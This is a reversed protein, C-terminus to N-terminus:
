NLGRRRAVLAGLADELQAAYAAPDCLPLGALRPRLDARIAALGAPDRAAAVAREVYAEPSETVWAGLGVRRLHSTAHRGCVHDGALAVVPVGMWLLELVTLGGSWPDSDLAVDISRFLRAMGVRDRGGELTVRELPLGLRQLRDLFTARLDARDFALGQILLRASPVRDLIEGWRTMLSDNLKELRNVSGFTVHGAAECPPPGPDPADKPPAFFYAGHPLFVPPESLTMAETVHDADTLFGDLGVLGVPGFVDGWIVQVPALRRAMLAVLAAPLTTPTLLVLAHPAARDVAAALAQPTAPAVTELGAAVAAAPPPLTAREPPQAHIMHVQTGTGHALIAPLALAAVQPRTFDGLYTIRLPPPPAREPAPAPRGARSWAAREDHIVSPAIRPAHHLITLLDGIHRPDRRVARDVSLALRAAKDAEGEALSLTALALAAAGNGPALALARRLPERAGAGGDLRLAITGLTRWAEAFTPALALAARAARRAGEADGRRLALLALAHWLTPDRGPAPATAALSEARAEDGEALAQLIVAGAATPDDPCWHHWLRALGAGHDAQSPRQAAAYARAFLRSLPLDPSWCKARDLALARLVLALAPVARGRRDLLLGLNLWSTPHAPLLTVVRRFASEADAHRATQLAEVGAM